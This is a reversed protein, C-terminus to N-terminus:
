GFAWLEFGALLAISHIRGLPLKLFLAVEVSFAVSIKHETVQGRANRTTSSVHSVGSGSVSNVQGVSSYGTTM